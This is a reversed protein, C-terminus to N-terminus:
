SGDDVDDASGLLNERVIEFVSNETTMEVFAMDDLAKVLKNVLTVPMQYGNKLDDKLEKIADKRDAIMREQASIEILTNKISEIDKPNSPLEFESIKSM